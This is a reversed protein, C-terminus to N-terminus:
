AFQLIGAPFVAQHREGAEPGFGLLLDLGAQGLKRAVGPEEAQPVEQGQGFGQRGPPPADGANEPELHGARHAAAQFHGAGNVQRDGGVVRVLHQCFQFFNQAGLKHFAAGPRASVVRGWPTGSLSVRAAGSANPAAQSAAVPM